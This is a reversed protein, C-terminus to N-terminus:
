MLPHSVEGPRHAGIYNLRKRNTTEDIVTVAVRWEPRARDRSRPSEEPTSKAALMRLSHMPLNLNRSNESNLFPGMRKHVAIYNEATDESWGFERDIWPSWGGHGAIRKADTLRRGIEIIDGVVREGLACIVASHEPCPNVQRSTKSSIM